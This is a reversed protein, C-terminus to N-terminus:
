ALAARLVAAERAKLAPAAVPGYDEPSDRLDPFLTLVEERSAKAMGRLAMDGPYLSEAMLGNANVIAHSDFMFHVYTVTEAPALRVGPLGLLHKAAVLAMEHGFLMELKTGHLMVRHQPSVKLPGHDGLVGADIEIPAMTGDGGVEVTGAWRIERTADGETWVRDGARLEEVPVWGEPTLIPTGACFCPVFDTYNSDGTNSGSRKIYQVGPKLQVDFAMGWVNTATGGQSFTWVNVFNGTPDGFEDLEEFTQLSESEVFTGDTVVGDGDVIEHNFRDDDDFVNVNATDDVVISRPAGGQWEFIAGVDTDSNNILGQGPTYTPDGSVFTFNENDFGIITRLVM